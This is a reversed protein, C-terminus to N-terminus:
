KNLIILMSDKLERLMSLIALKFNKNFGVDHESDMEISQKEQNHTMSGQSKKEKKGEKKWTWFNRSLFQIKLTNYYSHM